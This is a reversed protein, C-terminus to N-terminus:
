SAKKCLFIVEKAFLTPMSRALFDRLRLPILRGGKSAFEYYTNIIELKNEEIKLFEPMQAIDMLGKHGYVNRSYPLPNKGLLFRIRLDYVFDNPLGIIVHKKSVRIAEKLIKKPDFLHELIQSLVVVDFSEDEFPLRDIKNLDLIVDANDSIDVGIYEAFDLLQGLKKGGCGLDLVTRAKIGEIINKIKSLRRTDPINSDTPSKTAIYEYYLNKLKKLQTM